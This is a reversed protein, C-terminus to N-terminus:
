KNVSGDCRCWQTSLYISPNRPDVKILYCLHYPWGDLLTSHHFCHLPSETNPLQLWECSKGACLYCHKIARNKNIATKFVDWIKRVAYDSMWGPLLNEKDKAPTSCFIGPSCSPQKFGTELVTDIVCLAMFASARWRAQNEQSIDLSPCLPVWWLILTKIYAPYPDSFLLPILVTRPCGNSRLIM